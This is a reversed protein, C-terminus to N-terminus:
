THEGKAGEERLSPLPQPPTGSAHRLIDALVDQTRLLVDDNWYRLLGIGARLFCKHDRKMRRPGNLLQGGDLEIILRTQPCLFDVIFGAIPVQRRFRFGVMQRLKLHQWLHREADTAHNCFNVRAGDCGTWSSGKGWGGRPRRRFPPTSAAAWAALKERGIKANHRIDM